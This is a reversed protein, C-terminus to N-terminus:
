QTIRLSSIKDGQFNFYLKLRGADSSIYSVLSTGSITPSSITGVKDSGMLQNLAEAVQNKGSKTGRPSTLTVTSSLFGLMQSQNRAKATRVFAQATPLNKEAEALAKEYREKEKAVRIKEAERAKEAAIRNAEDQLDKQKERLEHIVAPTDAGFSADIVAYKNIVNGFDAPNTSNATADLISPANQNVIQNQVEVLCQKYKIGIPVLLERTTGTNGAKKILESLDSFRSKYQTLPHSANSNAPYYATVRSLEVWDALTWQVLATAMAAKGDKIKDDLKKLERDINTGLRQSKAVEKDRLASVRGIESIQKTVFAWNHRKADDIESQTKLGDVKMMSGAAPCSFNQLWAVSEKAEKESAYVGKAASCICVVVTAAIVIKKM